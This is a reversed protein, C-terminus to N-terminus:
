KWFGEDGYYDPMGSDVSFGAGCTILLADSDKILKCALEIENKYKEEKEM